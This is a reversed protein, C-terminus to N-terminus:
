CLKRWHNLRARFAGQWGAPSSAGNAGAGNSALTYSYGGFSESQYPGSAVAGYKDQWEGIEAALRLLAPPVAMPLVTGEFTEDTLDYAPHRHVGDNFVSGAIRYYQGEQLAPLDLAGVRIEFTGKIADGTYFYNHLHDLVQELMNDAM